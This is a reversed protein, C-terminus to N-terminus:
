NDLILYSMEELAIEAEDLCNTITFVKIDKFVKEARSLKAMRYLTQEQETMKRGTEDLSRSLNHAIEAMNQLEFKLENRLDQEEQSSKESKFAKTTKAM